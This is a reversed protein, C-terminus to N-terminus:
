PSPKTVVCLAIGLGSGLGSGSGPRLMDVSHDMSWDVIMKEQPNETTSDLTKKRRDLMGRLLGQMANWKAGDSQRAILEDLDLRKTDPRNLLAKIAANEVDGSVVLLVGPPITEPLWELDFGYARQEDRVAGITMRQM